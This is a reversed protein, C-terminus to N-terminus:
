KATYKEAMMMVWKSDVDKGISLSLQAGKFLEELAARLAKNEERLEKLKPNHMFITKQEKLREIEEEKEKFLSLIAQLAESEEDFSDKGREHADTYSSEVTDNHGCEYGLAFIDILEKEVKGELDTVNKSKTMQDEITYNGTNMASGNVKSAKDNM